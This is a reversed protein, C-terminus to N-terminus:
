VGTFTFGAWYYPQEFPKAEPHARDHKMLRLAAADRRGSAIHRGQYHEALRMEAATAERLCLQAILGGRQRPTADLAMKAALWAM